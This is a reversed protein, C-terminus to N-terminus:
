KKWINQKTIKKNERMEWVAIFWDEINNEKKDALVRIKDMGNTNKMINLHQLGLSSTSDFQIVFNGIVIEKMGNENIKITQTM